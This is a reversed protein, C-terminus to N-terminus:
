FALVDKLPDDSGCVTSGRGNADRLGGVLAAGEGGGTVAAASTMLFRQLWRGYGNGGLIGKRAGDDEADESKKWGSRERDMPPEHNRLPFYPGSAGSVASPLVVISPPQLASPALSSVGQSVQRRDEPYPSSGEKEARGELHISWGWGHRETALSRPASQANPVAWNRM